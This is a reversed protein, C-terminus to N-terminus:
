PTVNFFIDIDCPPRRAILDCYSNQARYCFHHLCVDIRAFPPRFVQLERNVRSPAHIYVSSLLHPSEVTNHLVKHLLLLDAIKRRAALPHMGAERCLANFNDKAFVTGRKYCWARLFARQIRELRDIKTVHHPSWFPINHFM